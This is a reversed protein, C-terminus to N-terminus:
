RDAIPGIHAIGGRNISSNGAERSSNVVGHLFRNGVAMGPLEFEGV